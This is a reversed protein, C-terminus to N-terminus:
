PALREIKWNGAKEQRSYQVRDHLRSPRGQWFEILDPIVIFGGWYAPRPIVEQGAFKAELEEQRRELVERSEIISSQPSAWAGIQSGRPRSQFYATSAEPTIKEVKGEVKVQRQLELWSFVLCAYPHAALQQGKNSTYNTFFVLGQENFEKLLVIRASPRKDANVTSLTMANPELVESNLAAEFWHKFQKVPDPDVDSVDLTHAAYERRLDHLNLAM